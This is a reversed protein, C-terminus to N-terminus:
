ADTHRYSTTTGATPSLNIIQEASVSSFLLDLYYLGLTTARPTSNSPGVIELIAVAFVGHGYKLLSRELRRGNNLNSPFWYLRSAGDQRSGIYTRGTILNVWQYVVAVGRISNIFEVRLTLFPYSVSGNPSHVM